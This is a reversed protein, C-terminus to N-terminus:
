EDGRPEAVSGGVLLALRFDRRRELVEDHAARLPQRVREIRDPQAAREITEVAFPVIPGCPAVALVRGGIRALQQAPERVGRTIPEVRGRKRHVPQADHILDGVGRARSRVSPRSASARRSKASLTANM